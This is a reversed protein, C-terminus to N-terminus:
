AIQISELYHSITIAPALALMRQLKSLTAALNFYTVFYDRPPLKLRPQDPDIERPHLYFVVPRGQRNTLYMAVRTVWFPMVRFYFGGGFPVRLPGLKFVSAPIEYLKRGNVYRVFPVIPAHSDGYLFTSFPFLSASYALGLEALVEYAWPTDKSISWSPARYGKVPQGTIAQLTDLSRKVDDRFENHSQKYVLQHGYGHSAIEHGMAQVMHVLGPHQEAVSGLFFFTAQAQHEALTALLAETNAQVRSELPRDRHSEMSSYNLHYWDEVDITLTITNQM